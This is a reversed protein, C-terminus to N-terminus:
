IVNWTVKQVYFVVLCEKFVCERERNVIKATPCM